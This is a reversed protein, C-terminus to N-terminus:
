SDVKSYLRSGHPIQCVTCRKVYGATSYGTMGGAVNYLNKFSHQSLISVGLSSRNGSSCILITMDEKNLETYKERLDAVPINIAGEIHSDEFENTARVDLLVFKESGTVM